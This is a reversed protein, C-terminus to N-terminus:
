AAELYSGRKSVRYYVMTVAFVIVTTTFSYTFALKGSSAVGPIIDEYFAIREVLFPVKGHGLVMVAIAWVQVAAILRLIISTMISPRLIPLTIDRFIRWKGAGFTYAAERMEKEIGQLGASLIIMVSPTVTWTDILIILVLASFGEANMFLLPDKVVGIGMLLSNIWGDRFLGTKWLIAVATPTIAMPIMAIFMLFNSFKFKINLFVALVLAIFYQLLVSIAAFLATNIVSQVFLDSEAMLRFNGMLTFGGDLGTFVEGIGELVPMLWFIAYYLFAPGMLLYPVAGRSILPKKM